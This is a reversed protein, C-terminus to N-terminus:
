RDFYKKKKECSLSIGPRRIVASVQSVHIFCVTFSSDGKIKQVWTAVYRFYIASLTFLFTSVHWTITFRSSFWPHLHPLTCLDAGSGSLLHLLVM